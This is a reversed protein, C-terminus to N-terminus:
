EVLSLWENILAQLPVTKMIADAADKITITRRGDKYDGELLGSEHNLKGGSPLVLLIRGKHLNFVIIERKYEKPNFPKMEGMYFFSPHKWKIREGVTSSASKIIQRIAEVTIGLSPELADIFKIVSQSDNIYDTAKAM